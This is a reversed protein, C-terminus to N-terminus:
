ATVVTRPASFESTDGTASKTATVTINQGVTVKSAPSITFTANGSGDTTVSKQGIFKKGESTGSPNSYFEITFSAGPTSNLKGKVTTATSSTKASSLVPFNQLNNPGTDGDPDVQPTNPDDGDNPTSVNTDFREFPGVLDMGLGVNSFISNRSVTTGASRAFIGVGDLGNFAITNSGAPTGDGIKNDSSDSGVAVGFDHNGLAITGSAATGIRNGLVSTGLSDDLSIGSLDNGSIVNRSGATTGGVTTGSANNEIVIGSDNGLAKTGSRDTGVYNGEVRNLDSGIINVGDTRNASIINRKDPTPGGVVTKSPSALGSSLLVVGHFANGRDLTGTPDTGIFNGEVRNGVSDNAIAVGSSFRNIVLGRIVSNSSNNILLGFDNPSNTGDLEVKLVADDGVAKTNPSADTQTYGNITVRETITPLPGFGQSNVAITKVGTGPIDFDIVDAGPTGNANQIAARLSCHDVGSFDPIVCQADNPNPDGIDSTSNVTFTTSASAPRPALLMTAILVLVALAMLTRFYHNTKTTHTNTM